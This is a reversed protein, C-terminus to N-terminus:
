SRSPENGSTLAIEISREAERLCDGIEEFNPVKDPDMGGLASVVSQIRLRSDQLRQREVRNLTV